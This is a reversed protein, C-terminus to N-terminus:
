EEPVGLEELVVGCPCLGTFRFQFLNLSVFVTLVYWYPHVWTGLGLSVFVFGGAMVHIWDAIKM